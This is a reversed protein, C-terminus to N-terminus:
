HAYQTLDSMFLSCLKLLEKDEPVVMDIMIIDYTRLLKFQGKIYGAWGDM